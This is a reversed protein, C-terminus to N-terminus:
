VRAAHTQYVTAAHATGSFLYAFAGIMMCNVMLAVGLATLKSAIQTNM